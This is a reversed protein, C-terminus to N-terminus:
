WDVMSKPFKVKMKEVTMNETVQTPFMILEREADAPIPIPETLDRREIQICREVIDLFLTLLNSYQYEVFNKTSWFNKETIALKIQEDYSLTVKKPIPLV